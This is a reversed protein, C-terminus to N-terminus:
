NNESKNPRWGSEWRTERNEVYQVYCKFCCEFKIMYLDDKSSFSYTECTPCTRNNNVNILEKSVLFGGVDVKEINPAYVKRLKNELQERYKLAEEPELEESSIEVEEGYKEIIKEIQAQKFAKQKFQEKNV